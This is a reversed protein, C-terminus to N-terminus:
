FLALEEVPAFSEELLLGFDVMDKIARKVYLSRKEKKKIKRHPTLPAMIGFNINSPQFRYHNPFSVYHALSGMATTWPFPILNQGALLRAMQVGAMLGSAASELYGEVGSIQGALFMDPRRRFQLTNLLHRPSQVYTNRHIVGYRVIHVREMGPLSRLIRKQEGWKLQTQFGVLNWLSKAFNDQRLQVVAFPQKGSRPDVIGVPKLPGFALTHPGREALVEVPLCGEFYIKKEHDGLHAREATVLEQHLAYYDDENLPINLYDQGDGKGYRSQPFIVELDLSDYEVVPAVADYFYLADDGLFGYLSQSFSNSCLPGAAIILPGEPLSRVEDRIVHINSENQIAQTVAGSFGERDVALASGAPVAMQRAARVILSDWLAMERKLLGVPHYLDDSRLSNSCVLEAFGATKHVSTQVHPRMEYLNVTFGRKALQYAAESGALGAGVVTVCKSM